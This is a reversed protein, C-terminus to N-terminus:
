VERRIFVWEGNHRTMHYTEGEYKIIYQRYWGDEFETETDSIVEGYRLIDNCIEQNVM